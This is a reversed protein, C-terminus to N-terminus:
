TPVKPRPVHLIGSTVPPPPSDHVALIVLLPEIVVSSPSEAFNSPFAFNSALFDCILPSSDYSTLFFFETSGILILDFSRRAVVQESSEAGCVAVTQPVAVILPEPSIEKRM